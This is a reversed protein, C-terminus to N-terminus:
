DETISITGAAVTATDGALIERRLALPFEGYYLVNGGVALDLLAWSVPTGWSATAEGFLKLQANTKRSPSGTASPWEAVTNPIALRAYGTGTSSVEVDGTPGNEGGDGSTFLALYVTVPPTYTVAGLVLDLVAKELYDSKSGM